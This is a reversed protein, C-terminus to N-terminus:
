YIISFSGVGWGWGGQFRNALAEFFINEGGGTKKELQCTEIKM